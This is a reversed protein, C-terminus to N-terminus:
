LKDQELSAKPTRKTNTYDIGFPDEGKSTEKREKSRKEQMRLCYFYGIILIVCLSVVPLLIWLWILSTSKEEDGKVSFTMSHFNPLYFGGADDIETMTQDIESSTGGLTVIISGPRM